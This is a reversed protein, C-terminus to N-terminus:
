ILHGKEDVELTRGSPPRPTSSEKDKPYVGMWGKSIAYDILEVKKKEDEGAMSSLKGRLLEVAYDTM